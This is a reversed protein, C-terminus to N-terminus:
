VHVGSEVKDMLEKLNMPKFYLDREIPLNFPPFKITELEKRSVAGLEAMSVDGLNVYAQFEQYEENYEYLYWSASSGGFLKCIVTIENASKESTDGQKKFQNLIEKTFLKM